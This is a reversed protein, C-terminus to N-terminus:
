QATDGGRAPHPNFSCLRRMVIVGTRLDHAAPDLRMIYSPFSLRLSRTVFARKVHSLPRSWAYETDSGGTNQVTSILDQKGLHNGFPNFVIHSLCGV